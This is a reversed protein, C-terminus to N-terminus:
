GQAYPVQVRQFFFMGSKDRPKWFLNTNKSNIWLKRHTHEHEHLACV